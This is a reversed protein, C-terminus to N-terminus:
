LVYRLYANGLAFEEWTVSERGYASLFNGADARTSSIGCATPTQSARAEVQPDHVAPTPGYYCIKGDENVSLETPISDNLILRTEPAEHNAQCEQAPPETTTTDSPGHSIGFLGSHPTRPQNGNLQSSVLGDPSPSLPDHDNERARTSGSMLARMEKLEKEAKEFRKAMALFESIPPPNDYHCEDSYIECTKCSPQGGECRV